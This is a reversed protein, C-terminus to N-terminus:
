SQPQGQADQNQPQGAPHNRGGHRLAWGAIGFLALGVAGRRVTRWVGVRPREVPHLMARYAGVTEPADVDAPRSANNPREPM